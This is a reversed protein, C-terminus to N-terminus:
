SRDFLGKLLLPRRAFGIAAAIYLASQLQYPMPHIGGHVRQRITSDPDSNMWDHMWLLGGVQQSFEPLFTEVGLTRAGQFAAAFVPHALSRTQTIPATNASVRFYSGETLPVAQKTEPTSLTESSLSQAQLRAVREAEWTEAMLTKGLYQAAQYSAGQITVVSDSVPHPGELSSQPKLFGLARLATMWWPRSAWWADSAAQDSAGLRTPTTPSVLMGVSALAHPPMADVIANMVGTLKFERMAGPAYAFLGLHIAGEEAFAKVAALAAEPHTLLDTPASPWYLRGPFAGEQWASPPPRQDIWLVDAGAKLFYATPAMEASAGLIAIRQGRLDIGESAIGQGLLSLTQAAEESLWHQSKLRAAMSVIESGAWLTGAFPISPHWPSFVQPESAQLLLTQDSSALHRKLPVDGQTSRFMLQDLSERALFTAIETSRPSAIRFREFQTLLVQYDRKFAAADTPLHFTLFADPFADIARKLLNWFLSSASQGDRVLVEGQITM